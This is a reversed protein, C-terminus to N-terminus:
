LTQIMQYAKGSGIGVEQLGLLDCNNKLIHIAKNPSSVYVPPKQNYYTQAWNAVDAATFVARPAMTKLASVFHQVAKIGEDEDSSSAAGQQSLFGMGAMAAVAQNLEEDTMVVEPAGAGGLQRFISRFGMRGGIAGHERRILKYASEMDMQLYDPHDRLIEAIKAPTVRVTAQSHNFAKAQEIPDEGLWKMPDPQTKASSLFYLAARHNSDNRNGPLHGISAREFPVIMPRLQMPVSGVSSASLLIRIRSRDKLSITLIDEAIYRLFVKGCSVLIFADPNERLLTAVPYADKGRAANIMKWWVTQVYPEKTVKQWINEEENKGATFDYPVIPEDMDTLGLGGTVIKIAEVEPHAEQIKVLTSFGLGRYQERPTLEPEFSSLKETWWLLASSMNQEPPMDGVWVKPAISRSVSCSTVLIIKM